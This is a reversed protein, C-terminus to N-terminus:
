ATGVASSLITVVATGTIAATGRARVSSLGAVNVAWIGNGTTTTVPTADTAVPKAGIAIFNTGDVSGEFTLTGTWTGTVQIGAVSFQRADLEVTTGPGTGNTTISGSISADITPM